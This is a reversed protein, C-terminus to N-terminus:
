FSIQYDWRYLKKNFFLIGSEYLDLKATRNTTQSFKNWIQYAKKNKRIGNVLIFSRDGCCNCIKHVLEDSLDNYYNLDIVVCDYEQQLLDPFLKDNLQIKRHWGDLLKSAEQRKIENSEIGIYEISSSPSTLCLSNLASGSGIELIKKSNFYNVLRFGLLNYKSLRIRPDNLRDLQDSIDFYAYYLAKEEIVRNILRFVFPSHIGHGKHHRVKYILKLGFRSLRYISPM